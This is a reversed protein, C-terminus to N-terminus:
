DVKPCIDEGRRFQRNAGAKGGGFAKTITLGTYYYADNRKPNAIKSVGDLYDTFVYRYGAEASLYFDKPLSYKLGVGMPVSATIKSYKTETDPNVDSIYNNPLNYDTKPNFFSAGGGGFAFGTFRGLHIFEWELVASLETLKTEFALGREQRWVSPHNKESASLKTTLAQGRVLFNNSLRYKVLLGIAPNIASGVNKAVIDIDGNYATAGLTLGVEFNQSFAINSFFLISFCFALFKSM